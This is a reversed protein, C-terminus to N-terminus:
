RKQKPTDFEDDDFGWDDDDDSKREWDDVFEDRKRPTPEIDDLKRSPPKIVRYDADYVSETKNYISETKGVGTDGKDRYGYSYVSGSQYKTKPEQPLEYTTGSPTYDQYNPAKYIPEEGDEEDGFFEDDFLDDEDASNPTSETNIRSESAPRSKGAELERIRSRLQKASLYNSLQFVAAMLWSTVLGAAIAFLIWMALPLSATKIGLFVMPLVPSWNQLAFLTLGGLVLLLLGLRIM